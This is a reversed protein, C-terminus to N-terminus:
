NGPEAHGSSKYLLPPTLLPSARGPNEKRVLVKKSGRQSENIVGEWGVAAQNVIFPQKM